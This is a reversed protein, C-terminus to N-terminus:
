PKSRPTKPSVEPKPFPFSSRIWDAADYLGAKNALGILTQMQDTVSRQDPM